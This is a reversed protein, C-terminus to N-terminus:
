TTPKSSNSQVKHRKNYEVQMMILEDITFNSFIETYNHARNIGLCDNELLYQLDPKTDLGLKDLLAKKSLLLKYNLNNCSEDIISKLALVVNKLENTNKYKSVIVDIESELNSDLANSIRKAIKLEKANLYNAYTTYVGGYDIITKGFVNDAKFDNSVLRKDFHTGFAINDLYNTPM